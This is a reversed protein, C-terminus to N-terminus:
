LRYLDGHRSSGLIKWSSLRHVGCHWHSDQVKRRRLRHVPWRRTRHVWSQLHL